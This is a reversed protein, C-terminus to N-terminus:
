IWRLLQAGFGLLLPGEAGQKGPGFMGADRFCFAGKSSAPEGCSADFHQPSQGGKDAELLLSHRRAWELSWGCRDALTM